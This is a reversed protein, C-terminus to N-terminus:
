QMLFPYVVTYPVTAGLVTLRKSLSPQCLVPTSNLYSADSGSVHTSSLKDIVLIPTVKYINRDIKSKALLFM